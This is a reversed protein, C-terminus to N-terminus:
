RVTTSNKKYVNYIPPSNCAVKNPTAKIFARYRKDTIKNKFTHSQHGVIFAFKFAGQEVVCCFCCQSMDVLYNFKLKMWNLGIM